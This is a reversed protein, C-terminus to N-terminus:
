VVVWIFVVLPDGGVWPLGVGIVVAWILVVFTFSGICSCILM